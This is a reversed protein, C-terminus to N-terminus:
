KLKVKRVGSTAASQQPTAEVLVRWWSRKGKAVYRLKVANGPNSTYTEYTKWSCSDDAPRCTRFQLVVEREPGPTVKIQGQDHPRRQVKATTRDSVSLGSRAASTVASAGTVPTM